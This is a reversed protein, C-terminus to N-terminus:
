ENEEEFVAREDLPTPPRNGVWWGAAAGAIAAVMTAALLAASALPTTDVAWHLCAISSFTTFGGFFGPGVAPFIVWPGRAQTRAVSAALLLSGVVNIVILDWPIAGGTAPLVEAIGIRAAGGLAGGALVLALQRARTM